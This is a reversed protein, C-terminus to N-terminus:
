FAIDWMIICSICVYCNSRDQFGRTMPEFGTTELEHLHLEIPLAPLFTSNLKKKTTKITADALPLGGSKRDSSPPEVGRAVLSM